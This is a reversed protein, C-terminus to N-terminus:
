AADGQEVQHQLEGGVSRILSLAQQNRTTAQTDAQPSPDGAFHSADLAAVFEGPGLGEAGTRIELGSSRKAFADFIRRCDDASVAGGWNEGFTM